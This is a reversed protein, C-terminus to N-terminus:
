GGGVRELDKHGHNDGIRSSMCKYGKGVIDGGELGDRAGM